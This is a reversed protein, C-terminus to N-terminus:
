GNSISVIEEIKTNNFKVMKGVSYQIGEDDTFSIYISIQGVNPDQENPVEKSEVVVDNFYRSFYNELTTQVENATNIVNGQNSHIIYPLSSVHDRYENTQSYEAVFFHSLLKDAVQVTSNEWGAEDLTPLYNNITM